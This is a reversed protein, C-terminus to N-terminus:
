FYGAPSITHIFLIADQQDRPVLEVPSLGGVLTNLPEFMWSNGDNRTERSLDTFVYKRRAQYFISEISNAPAPLINYVERSLNYARGTYQYFGITYLVPRHREVLWTGMSRANHEGYVAIDTNRHWIHGNAAWLVIREDPYLEELLFTVNDAMAPDRHLWQEWVDEALACRVFVPMSRAIREAVHAETAAEGGGQALAEHNEQLFRALADYSETLSDGGAQAYAVLATYSSLSEVFETDLIFVEAAYTPDVRAVVDRLFGPRSSLHDRAFTEQIDFGALTLPRATTQTEKVYEFLELVEHTWWVGYACRQMLQTASEREVAVNATHCGFIPSEWALVDFGMEEHLFKILRVKMQSNEKMGHWGEGLQVLRKGQLLPKLFQLDTFTGSVLSRIPQHHTEIWASWAANVPQAAPDEPTRLEEDTLLRNPDPNESEDPSTPSSSDCSTLLLLIALLLPALAVALLSSPDRSRM